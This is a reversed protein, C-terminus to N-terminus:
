MGLCEPAPTLGLVGPPPDRYMGQLLVGSGKGRPHHHTPPQWQTPVLSLAKQRQKEFTPSSARQPTGEGVEGRRLSLLPPTFNGSQPENMRVGTGGQVTIKSEQGGLGWIPSFSGLFLTTQTLNQGKLSLQLFVPSM